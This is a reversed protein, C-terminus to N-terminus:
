EIRLEARLPHRSKHDERAGPVRRPDGKGRKLSLREQDPWRDLDAPDGPFEAQHPQLPAQLTREPPLDVRVLADGPVQAWKKPYVTTRSITGPKTYCSIGASESGPYARLNAAIVASACSVPLRGAEAM